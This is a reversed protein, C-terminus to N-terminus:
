SKLPSELKLASENPAAAVPSPVPIEARKKQLLEVISKDVCEFGAAFTSVLNDTRSCDLRRRTERPNMKRSWLGIVITINPFRRRILKLIKRAQILADPPLASILIISARKAEIAKLMDPAPIDSSLEQAPVGRERLLNAFIKAAFEDADSHAPICLVSCESLLKLEAADFPLPNKKADSSAAADAIVEAAMERVAKAREEDIREVHLDAETLSIVPLLLEDCMEIQSEEHLETKLLDLATSRNDALLRHYFRVRANLVPKDTLLVNLFRLARIHKGMVALCVTLPTSLLLGLPGWLWAWFVAAVLLSLPSIGTGGGIVLPEVLFAFCLDLLAFQMLLYIPQWGDTMAVLILFPPLAAIWTGVYPVFRLLAVLGGWVLGDSLGLATMGAAVLAGYVLNIVTQMVLFHSVKRSVEDFAHSTARINNRGALRLLRNRLDDPQILIYISFILVIVATELPALLPGLVTTTLEVANIQPSVTEVRMPILTGDLPSIPGTNKKGAFEQSIESIADITKGFWAGTSKKLADSKHRIRESYEPLHSALEVAKIGLGYGASSLIAISLVASVVVAAMRGIYRELLRVPPTLLLSLLIALSLPALIPKGYYLAALM